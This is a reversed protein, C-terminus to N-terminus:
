VVIDVHQGDGDGGGDLDEVFRTAQLRFM